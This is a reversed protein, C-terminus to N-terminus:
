KDKGVGMTKPGRKKQLPKVAKDPIFWANGHKFAGEVRGENCLVQVRRTSISWKVAAEKITIFEM